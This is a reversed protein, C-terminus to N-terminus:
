KRVSFTVFLNCHGARYPLMPFTPLTAALIDSVNLGLHFATIEMATVIEPMVPRPLILCVLRVNEAALM